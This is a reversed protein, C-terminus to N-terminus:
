EGTEYNSAEPLQRGLWLAVLAMIAFMVLVINISLQSAFAALLGTILLLVGIVSNSTAVYQTRKNGEAIDVVYTKRGLRVGQHTVNLLFFLFLFIELNMESQLYNLGATALCLFSTLVSTILLVKRSSKDAFRGWIFSSSFSAVGSVVILLGLSKMTTGANSQQALLVFYPAALSSSMMFARVLVFRRFVKDQSVLQLSEQLQKKFSNAATTEGDFEKLQSFFLATCLACFTALALLWYEGAIRLLDYNLSLGLAISVM